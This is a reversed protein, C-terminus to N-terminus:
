PLNPGPGCLLSPFDNGDEEDSEGVSSSSKKQYEKRPQQNPRRRKANWWMHISRDPEFEKLPVRDTNLMLLDDLSDNSLLSRKDVKILKLTSFVRELKGNSVPLTFLLRVLTLINSWNSANPAQFLRWWVAQYSM